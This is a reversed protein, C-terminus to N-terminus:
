KKWTAALGSLVMFMALVLLAFPTGTTQMAVTKGQVNSPKSQNKTMFTDITTAIFNDGEYLNEQWVESGASMVKWKQVLSETAGATITGIDWIYKDHDFSGQSIEESIFDWDISSYSKDSTEVSVDEAPEDGDNVVDIEYTVIDGVEASNIEQGNEDLYKNDINLDSGATVVGNLGFIVMLLLALIIM